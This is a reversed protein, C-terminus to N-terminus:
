ASLNLDYFADASLIHKENHSILIITLDRKVEELISFIAADNEADLASTPEDLILVLPRRYLARAISLRQREGGSLSRGREGLAVELDGGLRAVVPHLRCSGIVENLRIHDIDDSLTINFALGEDLILTEQQVVSIFSRLDRLSLKAIDIGNINISGGDPELLRVLLRAITSKGSGSVGRIATICCPRFQANFNTLLPKNDDFGFSVNNFDIIPGKELRMPFGTNREAPIDFVQFFPRLSALSQRAQRYTFGTNELPRFLGLLYSNTLVLQGLSLQGAQFRRLAILTVASFGVILVTTLGIGLKGRARFFQLFAKAVLNILRAYRELIAEEIGNTKIGETNMLMDTSSAHSKIALEIAIQQKNAVVEGAQFLLVFYAAITFLLIAGLDWSVAIGLLILASTLEFFLPLATTMLGSLIVRLSGLGTGLIADTRGTPNELHHRLPLNLVHRLFRLQVMNTWDTEAPYYVLWSMERAVKSILLVAISTIVLLFGARSNQNMALKNIAESFFSPSLALAIAELAVVIVSLAFLLKVRRTTDLILTTRMFQFLDGWERLLGKANLNQSAITAM